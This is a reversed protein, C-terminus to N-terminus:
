LNAEKKFNLKAQYLDQNSLRHSIVIFTKTPFLNFINKLIIRETKVDIESFSEDLIYLEAPKLLTRALLIRQREGGSINFGNEELLFDYGLNGKEKAFDLKTAKAINLFEEYSFDRNLVVNHYISTTFIKEEQSLYSIKTRLDLLSYDTVDKDNIYITRSPADLYRLLLKAITSKGSGSPGYCLVKQGREISCSFANIINKGPIYAYNLNIMKIGQIWRDNSYKIDLEKRESPCNLLDELRRFSVKLSQYEEYFLLLRLFSAFASSALSHSVLLYDLKLTENLVKKGGWYLIYFLSIKETVTYVGQELCLIGQIREKLYLFSNYQQTLSTVSSLEMQLNQITDIGSISETLSSSYIGGKRSWLEIQPSLVFHVMYAIVSIVIFILLIFTALEVSLCFLVILAILFSFFDLFFTLLLQGIGDQLQDLDRLRALVEGTTRNKFYLYPLSFLHTIVIQFLAINIQRSLWLSIRQRLYRFIEMFLAISSFFLFFFWLNQTSNLGIGERLFLTYSFATIIQLAIYFMSMFFIILLYHGHTKFINVLEQKLHIKKKNIFLPKVLTFLLYKTTTLRDFETFSITRLGLAPDAVILYKKEKNIEHIVVFHHATKNVTIHAILPLMTQKLERFDGSVGQVSFGLQRGAEALYYANVGNKGTKTLMRLYEKSVEGKYTKIITLLCCVGCDKAGDQRVCEYHRM